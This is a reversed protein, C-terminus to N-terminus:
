HSYRRELSRKRKPGLHERTPSPTERKPSLPEERQSGMQWARFAKGVCPKMDCMSRMQSVLEAYKSNTQGSDHNPFHHTQEILNKRFEDETRPNGGGPHGKKLGVQFWVPSEPSFDMGGTHELEEWKGPGMGWNWNQNHSTAQLFTAKGSGHQVTKIRSKSTAKPGDGISGFYFRDGTVPDRLGKYRRPDPRYILHMASNRSPGPVNKRNPDLPVPNSDDLPETTSSSPRKRKSSTSTSAQPDAATRADSAESDSASSREASTSGYRASYTESRSPSSSQASSPSLSGSSHVPQEARTVLPPHGSRHPSLLSRSSLCRRLVAPKSVDAVGLARRGVVLAGGHACSVGVEEGRATLALFPSLLALINHIQMLPISLKVGVAPHKSIIM